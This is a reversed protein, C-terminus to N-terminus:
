IGNFTGWFSCYVNPISYGGSGEATSTINLLYLDLGDVHSAGPVQARISEIDGLDTVIINSSEPNCLDAPGPLFYIGSQNFAANLKTRTKSASADAEAQTLWPTGPATVFHVYTPIHFTNIVPLYPGSIVPQALPCASSFCQSSVSLSYLQSFLFFLAAFLKPSVISVQRTDIPFLLNTLM